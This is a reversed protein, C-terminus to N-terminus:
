RVTRTDLWRAFAADNTIVKMWHPRLYRDVMLWACRLKRLLKGRYGSVVKIYIGDGDTIRLDLVTRAGHENRQRSLRDRLQAARAYTQRSGLCQYTGDKRGFVRYKVKM